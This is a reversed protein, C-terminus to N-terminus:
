RPGPQVLSSGQAIFRGVLAAVVIALYLQGVVAEMWVLTQAAVTTPLVDGHGLTTLTVFSFYTLLNQRDGGSHLEAPGTDVISGPQFYELLTYFMTWLIGLLLFVCSAGAIQDATTEEGSLVARFLVVIVFVMLALSGADAVVGSFASEQAFAFTQSVLAPALLVLAIYFDRKVNSLSRVGALVVVIFVLRYFEEAELATLVPAAALLLVLAVLFPFFRGKGSKTLSGFM